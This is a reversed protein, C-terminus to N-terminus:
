LDQKNFMRVLKMNTAQLAYGVALCATFLLELDCKAMVNLM